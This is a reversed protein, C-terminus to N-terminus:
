KSSELESMRERIQSLTDETRATAIERQNEPWNKIRELKELAKQEQGKLNALMVQKPDREMLKRTKSAKSEAKKALMEPM